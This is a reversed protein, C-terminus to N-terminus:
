FNSPQTSQQRNLELGAHGSVVKKSLSQEFKCLIYLITFISNWKKTKNKFSLFLSVRNM